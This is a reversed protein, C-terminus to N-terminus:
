TSNICSIVLIYNGNISCSQYLMTDVTTIITTIIDCINHSSDIIKKNSKWKDNEIECFNFTYIENLMCM